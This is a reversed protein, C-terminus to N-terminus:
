DVHRQQLYIFRFFGRQRERILAMAKPISLVVPWPPCTLFLRQRHHLTNSPLATHRERWRGALSFCSPQWTDMRPEVRHAKKRAHSTRAVSNASSRRWLVVANRVAIDLGSVRNANTSSRLMLTPQCKCRRCNIVVLRSIVARHPGFQSARIALIRALFPLTPFDIASTSFYHRFYLLM